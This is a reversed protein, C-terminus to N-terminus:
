WRFGSSAAASPSSGALPSGATGSTTEPRYAQSGQCGDPDHGTRGGRGQRAHPHLVCCACCRSALPVRGTVAWQDTYKSPRLPRQGTGSPGRNKLAQLADRTRQRILEREYAAFSAMVNAMLQGQPTSLDIGLDLCVVNWRERQAREMRGAFDLLSRSLRDM